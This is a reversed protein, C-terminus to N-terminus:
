TISTNGDKFPLYRQNSALLEVHAASASLRTAVSGPNLASRQDRVTYWTQRQRQKIFAM